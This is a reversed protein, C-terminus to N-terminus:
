NINQLRVLMYKLENKTWREAMAKLENKTCM